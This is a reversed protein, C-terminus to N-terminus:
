KAPPTESNQTLAFGGVFGSVQDRLDPLNHPEEGPVGQRLGAHAEPAPDLSDKSIVAIKNYLNIRL